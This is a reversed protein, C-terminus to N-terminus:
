KALQWHEDFLGATIMDAVAADPKVKVVAYDGWLPTGYDGNYGRDEITLGTNLVVYKAQNPPNPYILALFSEKSPFTVAGLTVSDKTWKVPLNGNM